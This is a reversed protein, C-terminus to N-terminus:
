DEPRVAKRRLAAILGLLGLNILAVMFLGLLSADLGVRTFAVAAAWPALAQAILSPLALKGMLTAYGAPGFLALPLTGRVIYSVGVGAGYVLIVLAMLPLDFALAAVSAVILSSSAVATWFPHFSRGIVLEIARGAVQSPGLLAGVAVAAAASHGRGELIVLLHVSVVTAVVATFTLHVALLVLVTTRNRPADPAHVRPQEVSRPGAAAAHAASTSPVIFYIPVAAQVHIAAYILCTWRWGVAENLFASLPWCITSAFGGYLTITIIASRAHGGYLRGLAAFAAEYLSTGMGLGIVCWALLYLGLNTASAIGALGLALLLSGTALVPRGGHRDIAKGVVPSALGGCLMGISLGAVVWPLPWGTDSSIPLGLIAPLYFTTGYGLIQTFGLAGVVLRQSASRGSLSAHHIFPV